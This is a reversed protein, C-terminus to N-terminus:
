GGSFLVYVGFQQVVCVIYQLRCNAHVFSKQIATVDILCKLRDSQLRPFVAIIFVFTDGLSLAIGTVPWSPWCPQSVDLSGCKRSVRSMSPQSTKLGV